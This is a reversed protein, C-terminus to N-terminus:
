ANDTTTLKKCKQSRQFLQVYPRESMQYALDNEVEGTFPIQHFEPHLVCYLKRSTKRIPPRTLRM